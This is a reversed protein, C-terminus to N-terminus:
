STTKEHDLETGNIHKSTENLKMVEIKPEKWKMKDQASKTEKKQM